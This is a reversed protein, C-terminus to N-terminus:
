QFDLLEDLSNVSVFHYNERAKAYIDKALTVGEETEILKKYLPMLFKRRGVSTLFDRLAPEAPEYAHAITHLFWAALVESNGSRTFGFVQDLERLQDQSIDEPLKRIFHLWEHSSWGETQLQAAPTGSQWANLEREVANFRDSDVVPMTEPLGEGFIWAHYTQDTVEINNPELLNKNLYDIFEATTITQFAHTSFYERLFADFQERGVLNELHRLFFYGKEYAVNTVADDPNRGELDLKLRTDALNGEEEMEEVTELLDQYGLEALMEAYAPGEMAEMIRREFYVTFGENLWFDSWTANTVLNGSWSHALEHAVLSTLSRDGALITPTAFTLRPNEMGGFPFSPPLVILDYRDWRYPGYLSEAVALMEDLEAFEYAAEEILAPEAYVGTHEGIPEFVLDGVALAMLYAPIPQEMEFRYIGTENKTQPNEASMVALLHPPVEVTAEYTFRIGPSDQIPIWSRALIAQSQTFLFPQEEGATQAPNLWQLAEANEGTQYYVNVRETQPTIDIKVPSGMYANAEGVEFVTVSEEQGLTVRDIELGKSDLILHRADPAAEIDLRAVATIQQEEFNVRAEWNLHEVVAEEPRAYTHIDITDNMLEEAALFAKEGPNTCSSFLQVFLFCLPISFFHHKMTKNM